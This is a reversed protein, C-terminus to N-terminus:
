KLNRKGPYEQLLEQRAVTGHLGGLVEYKYINKHLPNFDDSARIHGDKCLVAIPPTGLVDANM